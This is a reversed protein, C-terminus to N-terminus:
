ITENKHDELTIYELIFSIKVNELDNCLSLTCKKILIELVPIFDKELSM